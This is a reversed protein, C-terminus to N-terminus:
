GQHVEEFVNGESWVGGEVDSARRTEEGFSRGFFLDEFGYVEGAGAAQREEDEASAAIKKDRIFAKGPEDQADGKFSDCLPAIDEADGSPFVPIGKNAVSDGLVIGADFTKGSDGAGDASRGDLVNASVSLFNGFGDDGNAGDVEATEFDPFERRRVAAERIAAANEVGGLASAVDDGADVVSQLFVACRAEGVGVQLLIKRLGVLRREGLDARGDAGDAPAFAHKDDGPIGVAAAGAAEELIGDDAGAVIGANGFKGTANGAMRGSIVEDLQGSGPEDLLRTKVFAVNESMGANGAAVGKGEDVTSVRLGGVDESEAVADDGGDLM